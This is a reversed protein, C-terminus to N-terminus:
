PLRELANVITNTDPAWVFLLYRGDRRTHVTGSPSEWWQGPLGRPADLLRVPVHHQPILLTMGREFEQAESTTDWITRWVVVRRGNEAEWVRLTDGDWGNARSWAVEEPMAQSLHLGVAFEGLTDELILEWETGLVPVLDPVHVASPQDPEERPSDGLYRSPHLIQETSLPPNTYSQDLTDWGGQEVITAVFRRGEQNPFRSLENWAEDDALAGSYRPREAEVILETLQNWDVSSLDESRYLGTVLTADGEILAELALREDTTQARARLGELDFHQDQLAHVYAHALLAQTDPDDEPRDIAVYLQKQESLYIAAPTQSQVTGPENPLLGLVSYPLLRSEPDDATHYSRLIEEIQHESLFSLPVEAQPALARGTEVQHAIQDFLRAARVQPWFGERPVPTATPTPSSPTTPPTTPPPASPTVVPAPELNQFSTVLFGALLGFVVVVILILYLTIRRQQPTFSSGKM